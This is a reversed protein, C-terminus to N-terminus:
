SKHIMTQRLIDETSQRQQNPPLLPMQRTFILPPTSAHKDTQLSTCVQMHGLQHWQWESDRAETFDLNTKGKQYRSMQTTRSFPGNFPNTHSQAHTRTDTHRDTVCTCLRGAQMQWKPLTLWKKIIIICRKICWTDTMLIGFWLCPPWMSRRTASLTIFSKSHRKSRTQLSTWTALSTLYVTGSTYLVTPTYTFSHQAFGTTMQPIELLNLQLLGAPIVGVRNCSDKYWRSICVSLHSMSGSHSFSSGQMRQWPQRLVAHQRHDGLSKATKTVPVTVGTVTVLVPVLSSRKPKTQIWVFGTPTWGATFPSSVTTLLASHGTLASLSTYNLTMWSYTTPMSPMIFM